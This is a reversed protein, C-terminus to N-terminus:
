MGESIRKEQSFKESGYPNPEDPFDKHFPPLQQAATAFFM